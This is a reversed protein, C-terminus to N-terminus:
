KESLISYIGRLVDWNPYKGKLSLFQTNIGLFILM